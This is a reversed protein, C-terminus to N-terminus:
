ATLQRQITWNSTNFIKELAERWQPDTVDSFDYVMKFYKLSCNCKPDHYGIDFDYKHDLISQIGRKICEFADMGHEESSLQMTYFLNGHKVCHTRIVFEVRGKLSIFVPTEVFGNWNWVTLQHFKFTHIAFEGKDLVEEGETTYSKEIDM